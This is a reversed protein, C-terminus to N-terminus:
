FTREEDEERLVSKTLDRAKPPIKEAKSDHTTPPGALTPSPVAEGETQDDQEKETDTHIVWDVKARDGTRRLRSPEIKPLALSVFKSEQPQVGVVTDAEPTPLALQNDDSRGQKTHCIITAAQEEAEEVAGMRKKQAKRRRWHGFVGRYISNQTVRKPPRGLDFLISQDFDIFMIQSAEYNWMMNRQFTDRNLVGNKVCEEDFVLGKWYVTEDGEKDRAVNNWVYEGILLMHVIDFTCAMWPRLLDINGLHVPINRGQRDKLRNYVRGENKSDPIYLKITGKGVFTYGHSALVLKFLRGTCGQKQLDM